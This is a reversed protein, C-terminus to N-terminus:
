LIDMRFSAGRKIFGQKEYWGYLEEHSCTFIFKYCNNKKAEEVAAEVLKEGIGQKRHNESVFLDEMFGFPEEHLDNHLVYLKVRGVVEGNEAVTIKVAFSDKQVEINFEM